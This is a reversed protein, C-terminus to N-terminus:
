SGEPIAAADLRALNRVAEVDADPRKILTLRQPEVADRDDYRALFARAAPPLDYLRMGLVYLERFGTSIALHAGLRDVAALTLPCSRGDARDGRDIHAQTVDLDLTAPLTDYWYRRRRQHEEDETRRPGRGSRFLRAAHALLPGATLSRDEEARRTIATFVLERERGEMMGLAHAASTLRGWCTIGEETAAQEALQACRENIGTM